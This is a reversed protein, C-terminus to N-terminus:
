NGNKIFCVYQFQTQSDPKDAVILTLCYLNRILTANEVIKFECDIFAINGTKDTVYLNNNYIYGTEPSLAAPNVHDNITIPIVKYISLHDPVFWSNGFYDYGVLDIGPDMVDDFVHKGLNNRM